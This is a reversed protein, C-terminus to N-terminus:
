FVFIVVFVIMLLCLAHLAYFLLVYFSYSDVNSVYIGECDSRAYEAEDMEADMDIDAPLPGIEANGEQADEKSYRRSSGKM